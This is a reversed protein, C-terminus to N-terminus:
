TRTTGWSRGQEWRWVGPAEMGWILLGARRMGRVVPCPRANESSMKSFVLPPYLFFFKCVINVSFFFWYKWIIKQSYFDCLCYPAGPDVEQHGSPVTRARCSAKAQAGASRRGTVQWTCAYRAVSLYGHGSRVKEEAGGCVARRSPYGEQSPAPSDSLPGSARRISPQELHPM